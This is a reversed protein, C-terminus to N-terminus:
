FGRGRGKNENNQSSSKYNCDWKVERDTNGLIGTLEIFLSTRYNIQAWIEDVLCRWQAKRHKISKSHRAPSPIIFSPFSSSLSFPPPPCCFSTFFLLYQSLFLFQKLCSSLLYLLLILNLGNIWQKRENTASPFGFPRDPCHCIYKVEQEKEVGVFCRLEEEVPSNEADHDRPNVYFRLVKVTTELM